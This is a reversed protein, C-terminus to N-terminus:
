DSQQSVDTFIIQLKKIAMICIIWWNEEPVASVFGFVKGHQVSAHIKAMELLHM